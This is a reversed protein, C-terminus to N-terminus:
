ASFAPNNSNASATISQDTISNKSIYLNKNASTRYWLHFSGSPIDSFEGDGFILRINDNDLTEVEFKRRNKSTNFIINQANALDVEAWEGYRTSEDTLHPTIEAYPDNTLIVNTDPNINNLWVDTDNINNTNIDVTQNPTLGDFTHNSFALTGQKVLMVFGTTASSDGLGDNAYLFSMKANMEPRREEPGDQTLTVPVVEMPINEGDVGTNFPLVSRGNTSIPNNNLTYLELLVDDVQVRENPSVTGFEQELVRNMVLLFQEKWDPNNVDNWFIQTGALNRGSSDIVTETTTISTLKVLGRAPINRSAKYSILKALRLISEKRQATTIFNEHANMDIRYSLLEGVYAFMELIAIFESSEIYDSFDEPFYLKIYDILSEKISDFDFATFNVQTFIQHAKEWAESRSLQRSM